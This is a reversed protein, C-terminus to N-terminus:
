KNKQLYNYNKYCQKCMNNFKISQKNERDTFERKCIKCTSTQTDNAKHQTLTNTSILCVIFVLVCIGIIVKSITIIKKDNDNIKNIIDKNM